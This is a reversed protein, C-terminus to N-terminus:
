FKIIGATTKATHSGEPFKSVDQAAVSILLRREEILEVM